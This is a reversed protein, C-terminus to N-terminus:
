FFLIYPIHKELYNKVTPCINDKKKLENLFLSMSCEHKNNSTQLPYRNYNNYFDILEHAKIMQDQESSLNFNVTKKM